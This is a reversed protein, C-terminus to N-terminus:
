EIILVRGHMCAAITRPQTDSHVNLSNREAAYHTERCAGLSRSGSRTTGAVTVAAAAATYNIGLQQKRPGYDSVRGPPRAALPGGPFIYVSCAGIM